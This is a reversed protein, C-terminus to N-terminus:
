TQHWTGLHSLVPIGLAGRHSFKAILKWSKLSATEPFRRLRLRLTEKSIQFKPSHGRGRQETKNGIHNGLTKAPDSKVM